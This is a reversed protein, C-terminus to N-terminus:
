KKEQERDEIADLVLGMRRIDNESLNDKPRYVWRWFWLQPVHAERALDTLKRDEVIRSKKIYDRIKVEMESIQDSIYEAQM